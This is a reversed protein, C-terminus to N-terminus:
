DIVRCDIVTATRLAACKLGSKPGCSGPQNKTNFPQKAQSCTTPKTRNLWWRSCHQTLVVTRVSPVECPRLFAAHSRFDIREWEQKSFDRKVSLSPM